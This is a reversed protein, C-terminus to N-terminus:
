NVILQGQAMISERREQGGEWNTRDAGWSDLSSIGEANCGGQTDRAGKESCRAPERKQLASTKVVRWDQYFGGWVPLWVGGEGGGQRINHGKWWRAPWSTILRYVHPTSRASTVVHGVQRKPVEASFTNNYSHCDLFQRFKGGLFYILLFSASLNWTFIAVDCSIVAM